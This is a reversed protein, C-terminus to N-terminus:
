VAVAGLKQLLAAVLNEREIILERYSPTRTRHEEVRMDKLAKQLFEALFTCEGETLTVQVDTM